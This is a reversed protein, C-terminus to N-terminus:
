ASSILAWQKVSETAAQTILNLGTKRNMLMVIRGGGASWAIAMILYHYPVDLLNNLVQKAWVDTAHKGCTLFIAL